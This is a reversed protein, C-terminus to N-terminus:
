IISTKRFVELFSQATKEWSFKEAQILGKKIMEQELSKNTLIKEIAQTIETPNGPDILIASDGTVEPMSSTKSTIVPVGIKQAELIPLGFGEYFSPYVFLSSLQYIVPLEKEPVFGTFSINKKLKLKSVKSLIKKWFWGRKGVIVLHYKKKLFSPLKAYAELLESINKRPELTGVFLLFDRPLHYKKKIGNIRKVSTVQSFHSGPYIVEIKEAPIKLFNILDNKTSQSIAIIKIAKKVVRPLFFRESFRTTFPLAKPYRWAVLDHVIIISPVKALYPIQYGTTALFLDIKSSSFDRAEKLMKLFRPARIIVKKINGLGQTIFLSLDFDNNSYLFYQNKKDVKLLAKVLELTYHGKGAIEKKIAERVDIAIKM